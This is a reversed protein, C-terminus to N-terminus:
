PQQFCYFPATWDCFGGSCWSTWFDFSQIWGWQGSAGATGDQWNACSGGTTNGDEWVGSWVTKEPGNGCSTTDDPPVGGTETQNILEAISGDTLDVWSNAIAIGDPRRYPIGQLNFRNIPGTTSTGLWAMFTGPVCAAQALSQCIADAGALGGLNGNYLGSTVFALTGTQCSGAFCRADSGCEGDPDAGSPIAACYGDVGCTKAASCAQCPADCAQDCCFGDPCFGLECEGGSACPAGV